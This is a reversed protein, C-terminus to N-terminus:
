NKGNTGKQYTTKQALNGGDSPPKSMKDPSSVRVLFNRM